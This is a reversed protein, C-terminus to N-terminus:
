PKSLAAFAFLHDYQQCHILVHSYNQISVEAPIRYIQNGNVSRLSSLNYFDAPEAAKSLYVKLDPGNSISFNELALEWTNGTKYIVAKGSVSQAYPGKVFFGSDQAMAAGDVEESLM